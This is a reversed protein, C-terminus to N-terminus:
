GIGPTLTIVQVPKANIRYPMNALRIRSAIVAVSRIEDHQVYRSVQRVLDATSGGCKVEIGMGADPLFFDVRDASSLRYERERRVGARELVHDIGRQLEDESCFSFRVHSILGALEGFNM